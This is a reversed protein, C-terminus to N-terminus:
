HKYSHVFVTLYQFVNFSMVLRGANARVGQSGGAAMSWDKKRVGGSKFYDFKCSSAYYSSLYKSYLEAVKKLM